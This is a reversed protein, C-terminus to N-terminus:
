RSRLDNAPKAGGGCGTLAAAMVVSLFVSIIRKKM